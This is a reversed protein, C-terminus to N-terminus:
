LNEGEQYWKDSKIHTKIDFTPIAFQKGDPREVFYVTEDGFCQMTGIKIVEGQVLGSTDNILYDGIEVIFRRQCYELHKQMKGNDRCKICFHGGNHSILNEHHTWHGCSWCVTTHTTLCTNCYSKGEAIVSATQYHYESCGICKINYKSTM